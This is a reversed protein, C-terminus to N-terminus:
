QYQHLNQTRYSNSTTFQIEMYVFEHLTAAEPTGRIIM